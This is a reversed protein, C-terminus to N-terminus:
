LLVTLKFNEARLMYDTVSEDSSKQLTTLETYLSIIRPMSTGLYHARLIGVAKKGDNKADRMILGLSKDDLLQVLEAYVLGNNDTYNEETGNQGLVEHLKQVRLHGMFKEEWLEYRDANGDFLLRSRPGNATSTNSM